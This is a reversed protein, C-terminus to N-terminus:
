HSKWYNGKKFSQEVVLTSGARIVATKLNSECQILHWTHKFSTDWKGADHNDVVPKFLVDQACNGGQPCSWYIKLYDQLCRNVVVLDLLVFSINLCDGLFCHHDLGIDNTTHIKQQGHEGVKEKVVVGRVDANLDSFRFVVDDIDAEVNIFCCAPESVVILVITWLRCCDGACWSVFLGPEASNGFHAAVAVFEIHRQDICESYLFQIKQNDWIKESLRVVREDFAIWVICAWVLNIVDVVANSGNNPHNWSSNEDVRNYFVLVEERNEGLRMPKREM